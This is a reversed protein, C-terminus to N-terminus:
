CNNLGEKALRRVDRYSIDVLDEARMSAIFFEGIPQKTKLVTLVLEGTKM